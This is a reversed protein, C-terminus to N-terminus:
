NKASTTNMCKDSKIAVNCVKDSPGGLRITAQHVVGQSGKGLMPMDNRNIIASSPVRLFEDQLSWCEGASDASANPVFANYLEEYTCEPIMENPRHSRVIKPPSTKDIKVDQPQQVNSTAVKKNLQKDEIPLAAAERGSLFSNLKEHINGM